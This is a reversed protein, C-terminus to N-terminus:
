HDIFVEITSHNRTTEGGSLSIRDVISSGNAMPEKKRRTDKKPGSLLNGTVSSFRLMKVLDFFVLERHSYLSGYRKM